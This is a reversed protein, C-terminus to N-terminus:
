REGPLAHLALPHHLSAELVVVPRRQMGAHRYGVSQEPQVEADFVRAVVGCIEVADGSHLTCLEAEASPTHWDREPHLPAGACLKQFWEHASVPRTPGAIRPASDLDATLTVGETEVKFDASWLVREAAKEEGFWLDHLLASQAVSEGGELSGRARVTNGVLHQLEAATAAAPLPRVRPGLAPHADGPGLLDASLEDRAGGILRMMILGALSGFFGLVISVFVVLLMDSLQRNVLNLLFKPAILLPSLWLTHAFVRLSKGFARALKASLKDPLALYVPPTPVESTEGRGDRVRTEVLQKSSLRQFFLHQGPVPRLM